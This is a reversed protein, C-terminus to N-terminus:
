QYIVVMPPPDLGVITAPDIVPTDQKYFLKIGGFEILEQTVFINYNGIKAEPSGFGDMDLVFDVGPLPTIAEKNYIMEREFQHVILIKNPLNHNTAIDSLIEIAIQVQNGDVEGIFSGPVRDPGTSFEPDLAAHVHPYELWKRVLEVENRITNHGIQLDLILLMDNAATFDVYEKIWEDGTYLLYTGDPGPNPQAVTAIIEFAMKVPTDPDAAEYAAAQEQLRVLLEEKSYEGLIGMTGTSPHGYYSIVRTTALLSEGDEGTTPVQTLTATAPPPPNTAPPASPTTATGAPPAQTPSPGPNPANTPAAPQTQAPDGASDAFETPTATPPWNGAEPALTQTPTIPSDTASTFTSGGDSTEPGSCGALTLALIIGIAVLTQVTRM